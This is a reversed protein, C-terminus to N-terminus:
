TDHCVKKMMKKNHSEVASVSWVCCTLWILLAIFYYHNIIIVISLIIMILGGRVSAYLLGVPGLLVSFLLAVAASKFPFYVKSM